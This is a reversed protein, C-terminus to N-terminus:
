ALTLDPRAVVEAGPEVVVARDRLQRGVLVALPLPVVTWALLVLLIGLLTTM